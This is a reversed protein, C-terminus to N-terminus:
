DYHYKCAIVIIAEKTVKYILRHEKTIRRSWFGQRNHRLPEPKGIGRFPNKLIIECLEIIRLAIKRDNKLWEKLEKLAGSEFM